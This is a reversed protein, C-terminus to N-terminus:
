KYTCYFNTFRVQNYSVWLQELSEAAAEIGQLHKIANRGLSLIKLSKFGQLNAINGIMNTSLSFKECNLLLHFPGDMKEIPPYVGILKIERYNSLNFRNYSEVM